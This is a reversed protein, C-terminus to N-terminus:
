RAKVFGGQLCRVEVAGLRWLGWFGQAEGKVDFQWILLTWLAGIRLCRAEMALEGAFGWLAEMAGLEVCLDRIAPPASGM